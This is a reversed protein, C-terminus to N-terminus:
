PCSSPDRGASCILGRVRKGKETSQQMKRAASELDLAMRVGKREEHGCGMPETKLMCGSYLRQDGAKSSEGGEEGPNATMAEWVTAGGGGQGRKPSNEM